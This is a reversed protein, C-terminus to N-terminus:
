CVAHLRARYHAHERLFDDELEALRARRLPPSLADDRAVLLARSLLAAAETLGAGVFGSVVEDHPATGGTVWAPLGDVEILSLARRAADAPPPRGPDDPTTM